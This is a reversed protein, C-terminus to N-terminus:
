RSLEFISVGLFACLFFFDLRSRIKTGRQTTPPTSRRDMRNSMEFGLFFMTLALTTISSAKPPFPDRYFVDTVFDIVIFVGVFRHGINIVGIQALKSTLVPRRVARRLSVSRSACVMLLAFWFSQWIASWVYEPGLSVLWSRWEPKFYYGLAGFLSWFM